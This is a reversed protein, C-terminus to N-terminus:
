FYFVYVTVVVMQEPEEKVVPMVQKIAYHRGGWLTDYQFNLRYAQRGKKAPACEGKVIAEKVEEHSAGRERM